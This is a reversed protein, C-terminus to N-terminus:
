PLLEWNILDTSHIFFGATRNATSNRCELLMERTGSQIFDSLPFPIAFELRTETISGPVNNWAQVWNNITYNWLRGYFQTAASTTKQSIIVRGSAYNEAGVVTKATFQSNLFATPNTADYVASQAWFDDDDAALSHITGTLLQGKVITADTPAYLEPPSLSVEKQFVDSAQNSDGPVLNSAFSQFSVFRGDLSIRPYLSARNGQFGDKDASLLRSRGSQRDWVFSDAVNNADGAVLNSANSFFAILRGDQSVTPRNSEGNSPTGSLGISIWELNGTQRDYCYVDQIGNTDQAILNSAYAEFAVYRADASIFPFASTGNPEEGGMGMIRMIHRTQRDFIFVDEVGNTDNPVLNDAKSHFVVIQGDGSISAHESWNNGQGGEDSVSVLDIVKLDRDYVFVDWTDNVDGPVLNSALSHFVVCRGDASIRPHISYGNAEEGLSSVSVRETTNNQLDRVFVDWVGNTDGPVLTTAASYFTVYRGDASLSPRYCPADAQTGDTAVSARVTTQLLSDFVFIDSCGNTDAPVLNDALSEYAIYRGDGSIASFFSQGNGETGASDVSARAIAGIQAESACISCILLLAGV